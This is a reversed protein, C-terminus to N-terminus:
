CNPHKGIKWYTLIAQISAKLEDYTQGKSFFGQVHLQYATKVQEPNETTTLFVFPISKRRLFESSDIHKKLELGNMIPMNIDCIILYPQEKDHQLYHLAEEGDFFKRVAHEPDIRSIVREIMEQDDPDDDIVVIPSQIFM